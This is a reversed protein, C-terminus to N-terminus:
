KAPKEGTQQRNKGTQRNNSKTPGEAIKGHAQEQERWESQQFLIVRKFNSRDKLPQM